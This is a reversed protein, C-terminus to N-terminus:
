EGRLVAIRQDTYHKVQAQLQPFAQLRVYAQLASHPQSLGDYALALGLWYAPKEGFATILRQYSLASQSYNKTKHYLSALLSRYAENREASSLHQELVTIAQASDGQQILLQASLKTKIDVALYNARQLILAAAATNEQQLYLETLLAACQAPAAESAVFTKLLAQAAAVEGQQILTQARQALQEDQWGANPSVLVAPAEAVTFAKITESNEPAGSPKIDAAKPPQTDTSIPQALEAFELTHADVFRASVFRARELLVEAQTLNGLQAQAQAKNLYRQAIKDLGDQADSNNASMSLIKQYYAYANDEVPTTLREAAMAREAFQLLNKISNELESNDESASVQATTLPLAAEQPPPALTSDAARPIVNIENKSSVYFTKVGYSLSLVAIFIVVFFISLPVWANARKAAISSQQLLQEDYGEASDLASQRQSLDLLVDNLLSM